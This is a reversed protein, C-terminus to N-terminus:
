RGNIIGDHTVVSASVLDGIDDVTNLAELQSLVQACEADDRFRARAYTTFKERVEDLSELAIEGHAGGIEGVALQRGGLDTVTVRSRHAPRSSEYAATFDSCEVVEVRAIMDRLGPDTRIHDDFLEPAIRGHMLTVAVLYPLSHDAEARNEPAWHHPRSALKRLAYGYTEVVVHGVEVPGVPLASNAREAALVASMGSGCASRPKVITRNLSEQRLWWVPEDDAYTAVNGVHELWGSEGVFPEAPGEFGNRALMAAFVGARGAEGSATAKWSTLQGLRARRLGNNAVVAIAVAHGTQEPSAGLLTAAVAAISISLLCTYDFADLDALDFLRLFIEYGIAVASLYQAGTTHNHEAVALLPMILDSPHAGQKGGVHLTDNLESSRASLGNVFAAIEPSVRDTTGVISASGSQATSLAWRRADRCTDLQWAAYYAAFTDVVRCNAAAAIGAPLPRAAADVCLQVISRQLPDVSM